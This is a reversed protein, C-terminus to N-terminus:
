SVGFIRKYAEVKARGTLHGIHLSREKARELWEDTRAVVKAPVGAAIHGDPVDKTVVARAGIVCDSGITVGAMILAGMGIFVNNGVVIPGALELDPVLRRFPLTGGDHTVFQAGVSIYVNDGLTILFPESGFMHYSGGYIRLSGQVRVGIARAYREPAVEAFLRRFPFTLFKLMRM